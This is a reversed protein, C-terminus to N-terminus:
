RAASRRLSLIGESRAGRHDRWKGQYLVHRGRAGAHAALPHIAASRRLPSSPSLSRGASGEASQGRRAEFLPEGSANLPVPAGDERRCSRRGGTRGHVFLVPQVYTTTGSTKTCTQFEVSGRGQRRSRSWRSSHTSGNREGRITTRRTGTPGYGVHRHDAVLVVMRERAPATSRDAKESPAALGAPQRDGGLAACATFTSARVVGRRAESRLKGLCAGVVVVDASSLAAVHRSYEWPPADRTGRARWAAHRRLRGSRPRESALAIM